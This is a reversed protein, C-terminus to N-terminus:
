IKKQHKHSNYSLDREILLEFRLVRGRLRGRHHALRAYRRKLRVKSTQGM